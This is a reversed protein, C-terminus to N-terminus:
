RGQCRRVIGQVTPSCSQPSNYVTRAVIHVLRDKDIVADRVAQNLGTKAATARIANEILVIIDASPIREGGNDVGFSVARDAWDTYYSWHEKIHACLADNSALVDVDDGLLAGGRCSM